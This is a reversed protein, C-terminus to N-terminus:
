NQSYRLHKSYIEQLGHIKGHYSTALKSQCDCM